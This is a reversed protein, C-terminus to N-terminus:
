GTKDLGGPVDHTGTEPKSATQKKAPNGVPLLLASILWPTRRNEKGATFEWASKHCLNEEGVIPCAACAKRDEAHTDAQPHIRLHIGGGLEEGAEDGAGQGGGAGHRGQRIQHFVREGEPLPFVAKGDEGKRHSRGRRGKDDRFLDTQGGAGGAVRWLEKGEAQPERHRVIRIGPVAQRFGGAYGSLGSQQPSVKARGCLFRLEGCFPQAPPAGQGFPYRCDGSLPEGM